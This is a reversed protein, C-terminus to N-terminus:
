RGATSQELESRVRIAGPSEDEVLPWQSSTGRYVRNTFLPGEGVPMRASIGARVDSAEPRRNPYESAGSSNKSHRAKTDTSSSPSDSSKDEFFRKIPGGMAVLLPRMVPLCACLIGVCPETFSLMVAPAATWLQNAPDPDLGHSTLVCRVISAVVDSYSLNLKM